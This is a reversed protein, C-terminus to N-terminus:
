KHIVFNNYGAGVNIAALMSLLGLLAIWHWRLSVRYFLAWCIVPNLQSVYRDWGSFGFIGGVCVHFAVHGVLAAFFAWAMLADEGVSNRARLFLLLLAGCAVITTSIVFAKKFLNQSPDTLGAWMSYFPQDLLVRHYREPHPTADVLINMFGVQPGYQPFLQHITLWNWSLYVLIPLSATLLIAGVWRLDGRFRGLAYVALFPFLSFLATQRLVGSYGSVFILLWFWPTAPDIKRWALLGLLFCFITPAESMVCATTAVWYPMFVTSICTLSLDEFLYQTLFLVGVVSMAVVICGAVMTNKIIFDVPIMLLSLGAFQRNLQINESMLQGHREIYQASAVYGDADAHLWGAQRYEYGSFVLLRTIVLLLLILLYKQGPKLMESPAQNYTFIQRLWGSVFGKPSFLRFDKIKILM